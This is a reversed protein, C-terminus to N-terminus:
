RTSITTSFQCTRGMQIGVFPSHPYQVYPDLNALADYGFAADMYSPSKPEFDMTPPPPRRRAPYYILSFIFPQQQSCSPCDTLSSRQRQRQSSKGFLFSFLTAPPPRLLTLLQYAHPLSPFPLSRPFSSPGKIVRLRTNPVPGLDIIAANPFNRERPNLRASKRPHSLTMPLQTYAPQDLEILPLVDLYPSPSTRIPLSGPSM